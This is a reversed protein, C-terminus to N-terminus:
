RKREDLAQQLVDDYLVAVRVDEDLMKGVGLDVHFVVICDVDVLCSVDVVVDVDEDEHDDVKAIVDVNLPPLADYLHMLGSQCCDPLLFVGYQPIANQM